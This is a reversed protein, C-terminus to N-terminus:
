YSSIALTFRAGADPNNEYHINAGIIETLRRVISLGLGTSHEEGTPRASLRAFKTFVKSKDGESFGPGEDIVEFIVKSSEKITKVYINKGQPSFKLANSILNDLIQFLIDYDTHLSAGGASDEFHIKINKKAANETHNSIVENCISDAKFVTNRIKINGQEIANHDLLKKILNFMRDTQFIINSTFENIIGSDPEKTSKLVRATSLINQLPNKLDHVAIAMFENKEENLDRLSENLKKVDDMAKALEVNRLKQIEAERLAKEVDHQISLNKAKLDSEEHLSELERLHATRFHKLALSLNNESEYIESLYKHIEVSLKKIGLSETIELASLFNQKADPIKNERLQMQGITALLGAIGKKDNLDYKIELSKKYYDLATRNNGLSVEVDGLEYLALSERLKDNNKLAIELAKLLQEEAKKFDNLLRHTLGINIYTVLLSEKDNLEAALENANSYFKLANVYDNINTYVLGINSLVIAKNSQQELEDYIKLSKFYTKLANAYNGLNDNIIGITNLGDAMKKKDGIAACIKISESLYRMSDPYNSLLECCVGMFYLSYAEGKKDANKLANMYALHSKELSKQPNSFKLEDAEDLLKYIQNHFVGEIGM